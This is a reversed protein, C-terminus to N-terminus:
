LDVFICEWSAPDTADISAIVLVRAPASVILSYQESETKIKGQSLKHVFKSLVLSDNSSDRECLWKEELRICADRRLSLVQYNRRLYDAYKTLADQAYNRGVIQIAAANLLNELNGHKKLLKKATKPGFSPVHKQIGPVGDVADGMFCRFSLDMTPDTGGYQKIYHKLNYFCWRRLEPVPMAMQVDNSILQKFDKDPSGILVKYGSELAQDTLTAIVDDAEYEKVKVVPVNCKQFIELIQPEARSLWGISAGNGCRRDAKYSPLIRKKYEHGEEGYRPFLHDAQRLHKDFHKVPTVSQTPSSTVSTTSSSPLCSCTVPFTYARLRRAALHHTPASCATSKPPAVIAM